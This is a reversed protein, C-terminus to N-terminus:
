VMAMQMSYQQWHTALLNDGVAEPSVARVPGALDPAIVKGQVRPAIVKGRVVPGVAKGQVVPGVAERVPAALAVRVPTGPVPDTPHPKTAKNNVSFNRFKNAAPGNTKTSIATAM